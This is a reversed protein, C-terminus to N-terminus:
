PVYGYEGEPEESPRSNNLLDKIIDLKALVRTEFGKLPDQIADLSTTVNVNRGTDLILKEMQRSRSIEKEKAQKRLEILAEQSLYMTVRKKSDM